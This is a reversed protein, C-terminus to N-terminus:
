SSRLMKGSRNLARAAGPYGGEARQSGAHGYARGACYMESADGACRSHIGAAEPVAPFSILPINVTSM